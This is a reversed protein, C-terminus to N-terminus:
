WRNDCMSDFNINVQGSLDLQQVKGKLLQVCNHTLQAAPSYHNLKLQNINIQIQAIIIITRLASFYAQM